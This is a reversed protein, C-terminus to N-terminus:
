RAYKYTTQYYDRVRTAILLADRVAHNLLERREDCVQGNLHFLVFMGSVIVVMVMVVGCWM